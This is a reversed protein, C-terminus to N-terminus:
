EQATSQMVEAEPVQQTIVEQVTETAISQEEQLGVEEINQEEPSSETVVDEVVQRVETIQEQVDTVAEEAEATISTLLKIKEVAEKINDEELFAKAEEAVEKVQEVSSDLKEVIVEGSNSTLPQTETEKETEQNEASDQTTDEQTVDQDEEIDETELVDEVSENNENIVAPTSTASLISGLDSIEDSVETALEQTEEVEKIIDAIKDEVIDKAEDALVEIAVIETEVVEKRAEVVERSILVKTGAIDKTIEKLRKAIGATEETLDKAVEKATTEDEKNIDQLTKEASAISKKLDAVVKEALKPKDTIKQLEKSRKKASALHLRTEEKKNGTASVALIHTKETALKVSYLLDGPMSQSSASASAAWGGLTTGCIFLGIVAVHLASSIPRPVFIHYIQAMKDQLGLPAPASQDQMIHSLLAAKTDKKWHLSPRLEDQSHTLESLQKKLTKSM